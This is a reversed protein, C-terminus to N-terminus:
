KKDVKVKIEKIGLTDSELTVIAEGKSGNTKVWVARQGGILAIDKPGIIDVKGNTSVKVVSNDYPLVNGYQSVAKIEIRVVDYTNDEILETKDAAAYEFTKNLAQKVENVLRYFDIDGGDAVSKASVRAIKDNFEDYFVVRIQLMETESYGKICIRNVGNVPVTTIVIKGTQVDEGKTKDFYHTPFVFADEPYESYNPVGEAGSEVFHNLAAIRDALITNLATFIKYGEALRFKKSLQEKKGDDTIMSFNFKLYDRVYNFSLSTKDGLGKATWFVGLNLELPKYNSFDVEKQEDTTKPTLIEEAM